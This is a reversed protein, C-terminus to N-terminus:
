DHKEADLMAFVHLVQPFLASITETAGSVSGPLTLILQKGKVGAVGRSLMAYPMREQGFNRSANMIGEIERELLPRVAEPTVDRPSLGTGGTFIILEIDAEFLSKLKKQILDYDDPIIEYVTTEILFRTLSEIIAKGSKDTKTGASISDSCVIVAAKFKGAEQNKLDSKGGKKEVLRISSIEIGKDIPKLMDYMTLAAIAAGHMAEVEVGTKYITKVEVRIRIGMEFIESQISAFEIPLPHCDPIVNYTQKIALLGAARSFEFVNGKPVSNNRITEITENKSVRLIAEAIATRKTKIKNTIDVMQNTSFLKRLFYNQNVSKFYHRPSNVRKSCFCVFSAIEFM